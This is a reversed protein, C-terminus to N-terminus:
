QVDVWSMKRLTEIYDAVSYKAKWGLAQTKKTIVDATMRNGRREPRMEIKGGFVQNLQHKM